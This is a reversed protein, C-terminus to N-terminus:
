DKPLYFDLDVPLYDPDECKFKVLVSHLESRHDKLRKFLVFTEHELDYSTSPDLGQIFQWDAAEVADSTSCFKGEIFLRVPESGLLKLAIGKSVARAEREIPIDSWTLGLNNGIDNLFEIVFTNAAHARPVQGIQVFHQLEHAFIMTLGVADSCTSGHLYIVHDFMRKSGYDAFIVDTMYTPWGNFGTRDTISHYFGLNESGHWRKFFQCDEDDFFCLLRRDPLSNGFQDLVGQAASERQQKVAADSSKVKLVPPM